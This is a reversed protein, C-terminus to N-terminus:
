LRLIQYNKVTQSEHFKKYNNDDMIDSLESQVGIIKSLEISGM